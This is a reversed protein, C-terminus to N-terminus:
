CRGAATTAEPIHTLVRRLESATLQATEEQHAAPLGLTVLGLALAARACRM